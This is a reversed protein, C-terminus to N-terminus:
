GRTVGRVGVAPLATLARVRPSQQPPTEAGTGWHIATLGVGQKLLREADARVLPDFLVSGGMRTNFVIAKVGKLKDPDRPWGNSVEATVGKTQRLCKALIACDSLYEHQSFAHDREKAVLLIKVPTEQAAAPTDVAPAGPGVGLRLAAALVLRHM